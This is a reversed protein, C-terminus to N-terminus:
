LQYHQSAKKIYNQENSGMNQQNPNGWTTCFCVNPSTTYHGTMQHGTTGSINTGFIILISTGKKWHCDNINLINKELCPTCQVYMHSWRKLPQFRRLALRAVTHLMM